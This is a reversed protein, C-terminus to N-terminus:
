VAGWKVCEELFGSFSMVIAAVLYIRTNLEM